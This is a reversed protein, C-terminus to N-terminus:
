VVHLFAHCCRRVPAHVAAHRPVTTYVKLLSHHVDMHLASRELKTSGLVGLLLVGHYTPLTNATATYLSLM